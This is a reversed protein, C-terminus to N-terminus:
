LTVVLGLGWALQLGAYSFAARGGATFLAPRLTWALDVTTRIRLYAALPVGLDGRAGLALGWSYHTAEPLGLISQGQAGLVALHLRPGFQLEPARATHLDAGASLGLNGVRLAGFETVLQNPNYAGEFAWRWNGSVSAYAALEGGVSIRKGEATLLVLSGAALRWGTPKHTEGTPASLSEARADRKRPQSDRKQFARSARQLSRLERHQRELSAAVAANLSTRVLESMAIALTRPRADVPLDACDVPLRNPARAGKLTVSVQAELADVSPPELGVQAPLFENNRASDASEIRWGLECRATLPEPVARLGSLALELGFARNLEIAYAASPCPAAAEAAAPTAESYDAHGLASLLLLTLGLRCQGQWHIV